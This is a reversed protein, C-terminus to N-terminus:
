KKRVNNFRSKQVQKPENVSQVLASAKERSELYVKQMLDATRRISDTVAYRVKEYDEKSLIEKMEKKMADEERMINIAISQFAPQMIKDISTLAVAGRDEKQQADIILERLSSLLANFAYVGSKGKSAKINHEAYPLLDIVAQTTTKLVSSSVSETDGDELLRQIKHASEGIISRMDVFDKNLSHPTKKNNEVIKKELDFKKVRRKKTPSLILERGIKKKKPSPSDIPITDFDM